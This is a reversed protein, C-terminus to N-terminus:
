SSKRAQNWTHQHIPISGAIRASRPALQSQAGHQMMSAEKPIGVATTKAQSPRAIRIRVDVLPALAGTLTSRAHKALVCQKASTLRLAIHASCDVQDFISM